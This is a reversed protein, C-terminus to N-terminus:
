LTFNKLKLFFILCVLSNELQPNPNVQFNKLLEKLFPIKRKWGLPKGKLPRLPSRHVSNKLPPTHSFWCLSIWVRNLFANQSLTAETFLGKRHCRLRNAVSAGHRESLGLALSPWM